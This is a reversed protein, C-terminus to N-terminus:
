NKWFGCKEALIPFFLLPKGGRSETAKASHRLDVM